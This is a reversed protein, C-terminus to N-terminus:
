ITFPQQINIMQSSSLQPVQSYKGALIQRMTMLLQAFSPNSCMKLAELFASTMAGGSVNGGHSPATTDAATQDDRCGSFLLVEGASMKKGEQNMGGTTPKSSHGGFLDGLHMKKKGKLGGLLSKAILSIKEVQIDTNGRPATFVYPLDMGTGSHCCDMVSTLRCGAPVPKVLRLWIEDDVIQGASKYDCPLITEDYGNAEDGDTDVVQSGHGSYHFFLSDGAKANQLLWKFGEFINQRTPKYQGSQDDTLILMEQFGCRSLFDRMNHVDNIPGNLRASPTDLYNCGIL